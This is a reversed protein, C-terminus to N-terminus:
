DVEEEFFVYKNVPTLEGNEEDILSLTLTDEAIEM